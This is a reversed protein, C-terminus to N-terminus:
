RQMMHALLETQSTSMNLHEHREYRAIAASTLRGMNGDAQGHLYGHAILYRQIDQRTDADTMASVPASVTQYSGLRVLYRCTNTGPETHAIAYTVVPAVTDRITPVWHMAGSVGYMAGVLSATVSFICAGKLPAWNRGRQRYEVPVKLRM